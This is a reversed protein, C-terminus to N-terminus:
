IMGNYFNSDRIKKSKGKHGSKLHIAYWEGVAVKELLSFKIRLGKSRALYDILAWQPDKLARKPPERHKM